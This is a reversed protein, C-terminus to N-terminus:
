ITDHAAALDNLINNIDGSPNAQGKSKQYSKIVAVNPPDNATKADPNPLKCGVNNLRRLGGRILTHPELYGIQLTIDVDIPQKDDKEIEDDFDDAVISPPHPLAKDASPTKRKGTKGTDVAPLAPFRLHISGAKANPQIEMELLGNAGLKSLKAPGVTLECKQVRPVQGEVDVIAVRIKTKKRDVVFKKESDLSLAVKKAQKDPIDVTKGEELMNPNAWNTSNQGFKYITQYNFFGKDKAISNFCDGPTVTYTPM